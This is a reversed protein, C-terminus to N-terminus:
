CSMSTSRINCPRPFPLLLLIVHCHLSLSLALAISLWDNDIPARPNALIPRPVVLSPRAVRPHRRVPTCRATSPKAGCFIPVHPEIADHGVSPGCLHWVMAVLSSSLSTLQPLLILNYTSGMMINGSNEGIIEHAPM